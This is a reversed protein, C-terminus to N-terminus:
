FNTQRVYLGIYKSVQLGPTQGNLCIGGILRQVVSRWSPRQHHFNRSGAFQVECPPNWDSVDLMFAQCDSKIRDQTLGVYFLKAISKELLCHSDDDFASFNGALNAIPHSWYLDASSFRLHKQQPQSDLSFNPSIKGAMFVIVMTCSIQDIEM